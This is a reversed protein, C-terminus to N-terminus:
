SNRALTITRMNVDVGFDRLLPQALSLNMSTSYAPNFTTFPNNSDTKSNDFSLSYNLGTPLLQRLGINGVERETQPSFIISTVPREESATELRASSYWDFISESARARQRSELYQYDQVVVGLNEAAAARAAQSLTLEIPRAEEQAEREQPAQASVGFALLCVATTFIRSKTM